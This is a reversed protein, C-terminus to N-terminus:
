GKPGSTLQRHAISLKIGQEGRANAMAAKTVLLKVIKHLHRALHVERAGLPLRSMIKRAM